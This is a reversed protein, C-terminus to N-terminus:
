HSPNDWISHFIFFTQFWWGSITMGSRIAQTFVLTLPLSAVLRCPDFGGRIMDFLFGYGINITEM